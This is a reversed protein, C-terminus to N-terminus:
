KNTDGFFFFIAVAAVSAAATLRCSVLRTWEEVEVAALDKGRWVFIAENIVKLIVQINFARTQICVRLQCKSAESNQNIKNKKQEKKKNKKKMYTFGKM